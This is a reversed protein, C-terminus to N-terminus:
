GLDIFFSIVNTLILGSPVRMGVFAATVVAVAAITCRVWLPRLPPAWRVSGWGVATRVLMTLSATLILGVAAISIQLQTEILHRQEPNEIVATADIRPYVSNSRWGGSFDTTDGRGGFAQVVREGRTVDPMIVIEVGIEDLAAGGASPVIAVSEEFYSELSRQGLSSFMTPMAADYSVSLTQRTYSDTTLMRPEWILASVSAALHEETTPSLPVTYLLLGNSLQSAPGVPLLNSRDDLPPCETAQELSAPQTASPAYLSLAKPAGDSLGMFSYVCVLWPDGMRSPARFQLAVPATSLAYIAGDPTEAPISVSFLEAVDRLGGDIATPSDFVDAPLGREELGNYNRLAQSGDSLAFVSLAIWALIRAIYMQTQPARQNRPTRPTTDKEPMLNPANSRPATPAPRLKSQDGETPSARGVTYRLVLALAIWTLTRRFASRM